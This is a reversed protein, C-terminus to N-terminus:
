ENYKALACTLLGRHPYNKITNMDYWGLPNSQALYDAISGGHGMISDYTLTNHRDWYGYCCAHHKGIEVVVEDDFATEGEDKTYKIAYNFQYRVSDITTWKRQAKCTLSFTIFLFFILKSKM